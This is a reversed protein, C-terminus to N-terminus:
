QDVKIFSVKFAHNICAVAVKTKGIALASNDPAVKANSRSLM